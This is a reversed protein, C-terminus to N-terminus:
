RRERTPAAGGPGCGDRRPTEVPSFPRSVPLAVTAFHYITAPETTPTETARFLARQFASLGERLREFRPPDLRLLRFRGYRSDRAVTDLSRRHYALMTREFRVRAARHVDPPITIRGSSVTLRGDGGRRVLGLRQLQHLARAAQASELRPRMRDAIWRPDDVFGPLQVMAGIVPPWWERIIEVADRELAEVTLHERRARLAELWTWRERETDAVNARVLAEFRRTEDADLGLGAAFADIASVPMARQGDAVLKLFNPSAFGARRSFWRYSFRPEVARLHAIMAGLYRRHDDFDAPEPRAHPEPGATAAPQEPDGRPPTPDIPWTFPSGVVAVAYIRADPGDSEGIAGALSAFETSAMRGLRDFQGADLASLMGASVRQDPAVASIRHGMSALMAGAVARAEFGLRADDVRVHPTTPRWRGAADRGVLAARELAALADAAQAPTIAPLVHRAIWAPDDCFGDIATMERIIPRQWDGLLASVDAVREVRRAARAEGLEAAWRAREAPTEALELRVLAEFRDRELDDLGLGRAFPDISAASMRRTGDAVLKLFNPSSFGARRSFWRYSFRPEVARLHEIMARLYARHDDFHQPQPRSPDSM